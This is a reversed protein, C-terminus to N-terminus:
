WNKLVKRWNGTHSLVYDGVSVDEINQYGNDLTLIQTGAIFCPSGGILLDIKPLTTTDLRTVDVLEINSPHNHRAVQLAQPKIESTFYKDVKIGARQLAVRGCSIGDFLSLVNM